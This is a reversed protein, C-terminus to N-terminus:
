PKVASLQRQLDRVDERNVLTADLELARSLAARAATLQGAAHQVAAAHWQVVASDPLARLAESVYRLATEVDGMLFLVWGLTDAVNADRPALAQARRALPLADAPANQHVGLSYALNNLAVVHNADHELVARYRAAASAHDGRKEYEAALLLQASSLRPELATADVLAQEGGARDDRAFRAEARLALKMAEERLAMAQVQDLRRRTFFAPQESVPDLPPDLETDDAGALPAVVCLPDGIVVTQWSLFPTALYAAEALTFGSLYAPLLVDPRVAGDLYPDAVSATLGTVGARILDGALSSPAGAYFSTPDVWRGLEWAPPPATFTRADGPVFMGAIGGPAFNLGTRRSTVAPDSSGWSYYAIVDQEGSVVESTSNLRLRDKWGALELDRAARELWANGPDALAAKMDLVVRGSSAPRQARDVLAIADEASFGELRTVLYLDHEAHTFRRAERLSRDGLFYPNPIRGQPPVPRGAMRRYLLALESDVSAITGQRGSTGSIRLPLDKALVIFLIRDQAAHRRLWAAIPAELGREYSTRAIEDDLELEVRVIQSPDLNRARAYHEGVTTSDPSRANIVLLVHRASQAHVGEGIGLALVGLGASITYSALRCLPM